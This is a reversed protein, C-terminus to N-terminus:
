HRPGLGVGLAITRKQRLAPLPLIESYVAGIPVSLDLVAVAPYKLCVPPERIGFFGIVATGIEIPIRERAHRLILCRGRAAGHFICDIPVGSTFPSYLGLLAPDRFTFDIDAARQEAPQGRDTFIMRVSGSNKPDKGPHQALLAAVNLGLLEDAADDVDVL